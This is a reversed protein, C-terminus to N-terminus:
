GCPYLSHAFWWRGGQSEFCLPAGPTPIGKARFDICPRGVPGVRPDPQFSVLVAVEKATRFFAALSAPRGAEATAGQGGFFAGHLWSAESRLDRAVKERPVVRRGCRLGTEPVRAVLAEVDHSVISRELRAGLDVLEKAIASRRAEVTAQTERPPAPEAATALALLVALATV